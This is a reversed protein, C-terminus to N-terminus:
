NPIILATTHSRQVIATNRCREFDHSFHHKVFCGGTPSDPPWKTVM